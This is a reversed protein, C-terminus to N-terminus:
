TMHACRTISIEGKACIDFAHDIIEQTSTFQAWTSGVGAFHTPTIERVQEIQKDWVVLLDIGAAICAQLGASYAPNSVSLKRDSGKLAQLDAMTHNRAAPCRAFDYIRKM